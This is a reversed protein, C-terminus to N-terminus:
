RFKKTDGVSSVFTRLVAAPVGAVVVNGPVDRNVVSGAGVVSNNGIKVGPLIIAGAGIWVNEGIVVPRCDLTERYLSGNIVHTQSIIVCHSAIMSDSGIEVGGGGWIHVFENIYVRHGLIVREPCRIVVNRRITVDQGLKLNRALWVARRFLISASDAKLLNAIGFAAYFIPTM